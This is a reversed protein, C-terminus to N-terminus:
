VVLGKTSQRRPMGGRTAAEIITLDLLHSDAFMAVEDELRQASSRHPLAGAFATRWGVSVDNGAALRPDGILQQADERSGM